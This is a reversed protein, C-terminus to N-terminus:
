NSEIDKPSPPQGSQDKAQYKALVVALPLTIPATILAFLASLACAVPFYVRRGMRSSDFVADVEARYSPSLLYLWGACAMGCLELIEM